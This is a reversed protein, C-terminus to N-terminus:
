MFLSSYRSSLCRSGSMSLQLVRRQWPSSRLLLPKTLIWTIGWNDKAIVCVNKSETLHTENKVRWTEGCLSWTNRKESSKTRVRDTVRFERLQKWTYRCGMGTLSRATSSTCSPSIRMPPDKLPANVVPSLPANLYIPNIEVQQGPLQLLDSSRDVAFSRFQCLHKVNEFAWMKCTFSSSKTIYQM